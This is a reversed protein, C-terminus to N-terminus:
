NSIPKEQMLLSKVKAQNGQIQKSVITAKPPAEGPEVTNMMQLIANSSLATCFKVWNDFSGCKSMSPSRKGPDDYQAKMKIIEPDSNPLTPVCGLWGILGLQVESM